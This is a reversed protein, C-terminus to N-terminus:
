LEGKLAKLALCVYVELVHWVLKLPTFPLLWLPGEIKIEFRAM